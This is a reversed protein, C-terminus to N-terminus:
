RRIKPEINIGDDEDDDGMGFSGGKGTPKTGWITRDGFTFGDGFDKVEGPFDGGANKLEDGVDVPNPVVFSPAEWGGPMKGLANPTYLFDEWMWALGEQPDDMDFWKEPGGGSEDWLNEYDRNWAARGWGRDWPGHMPFIDQYITDGDGPWFEEGFNRYGKRKKYPPMYPREYYPERYSSYSYNTSGYDPASYYNSYYGPDPYYGSYDYSQTTYGSNDYGYSDYGGYNFDQQPSYSSSYDAQPYYSQSYDAQPYYSNGYGYYDDYSSYYQALAPQSATLLAVLGALLASKSQFM